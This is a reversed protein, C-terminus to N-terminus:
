GYIVEGYIAMQNLADVAWCDWDGSDALYGASLSLGKLEGRDLAATLLKLGKKAKAMTVTHIKGDEPDSFKFVFDKYNFGVCPVCCGFEPFNMYIERILAEKNM